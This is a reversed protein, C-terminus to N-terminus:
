NIYPYPEPYMSRMRGGGRRYGTRDYGGNERYGSREPYGGGMNDREGMRGYNYTREGMRENMEEDDEGMIDEVDRMLKGAYRLIGKANEVISSKQEHTIEIMNYGM